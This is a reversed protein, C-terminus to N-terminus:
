IHCMKEDEKAQVNRKQTWMYLITQKLFNQCVSCNGLLLPDWLVNILTATNGRSDRSTPSPTGTIWLRTKLWNSKEFNNVIFVKLSCQWKGSLYPGMFCYNLNRQQGSLRKLNTLPHWNDVIKNKILEIKWFQKCNVSKTLVAMEWFSLTEYFM